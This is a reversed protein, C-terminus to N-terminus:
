GDADKDLGGMYEKVLMTKGTGATGVFMVNKGRRALANMVYTLRVSNVTEVNLSTFPTAAGTGGIIVPTYQTVKTEWKM